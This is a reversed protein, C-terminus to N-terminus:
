IDFSKLVKKLGFYHDPRYSILQHARGRFASILDDELSLPNMGELVTHLFTTDKLM